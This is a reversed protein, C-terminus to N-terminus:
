LAAPTGENGNGGTAAENEEAIVAGALIEQYIGTSFQADERVAKGLRGSSWSYVSGISGAKGGPGEVVGGDVEVAAGEGEEKDKGINGGM